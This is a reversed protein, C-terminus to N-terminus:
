SSQELLAKQELLRTPTGFTRVIIEQWKIM